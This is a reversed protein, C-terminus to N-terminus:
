RRSESERVDAPDDGYVRRRLTEAIRLREDLSARALQARDWADGESFGKAKHGIAEILRPMRMFVM